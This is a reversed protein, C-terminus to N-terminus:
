RLLKGPKSDFNEQNQGFKSYEPLVLKGLKASNETGVSMRSECSSVIFNRYWESHPLRRDYIRVTGDGCGAM